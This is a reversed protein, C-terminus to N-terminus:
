EKKFVLSEKKKKKKKKPHEVMFGLGGPTEIMTRINIIHSNRIKVEEHSSHAM